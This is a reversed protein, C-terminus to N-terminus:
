LRVRCLTQLHANAASRTACLGWLETDRPQPQWLPLFGGGPLQPAASTLATGCPTETGPREPLLSTPQLEALGSGHRQRGRAAGGTCSPVAGQAGTQASPAPSTSLAARLSCVSKDVLQTLTIIRHRTLTPTGM